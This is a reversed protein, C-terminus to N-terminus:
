AWKEPIVELKTYNLSAAGSTSSRRAWLRFDCAVGAPITVRKSGFLPVLNGANTFPTHAFKTIGLQQDTEPDLVLGGRIGVGLMVYASGATTSAIGNYQIRVVLPRTLAGFTVATSGGVNQWTAAAATIAFSDAGFDILPEPLPQKVVLNGPILVEQGATGLVLQDAKTTQAGAGIATSRAHSATAGSGFAAGDEAGAAVTAGGGVAVGGVAAVSSAVGISVAGDVDATAGWGLAVAAGGDASASGVAVSLLGDATAGPGLAVSSAGAGSHTEAPIADIAAKLGAPTVARAADTGATAESTTALEVIGAQTTSAPEVVPPAPLTAWQAAGGVTTLVQGNNAATPRPVTLSAPTSEPM